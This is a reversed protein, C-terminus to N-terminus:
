MRDKSSSSERADDVIPFITGTRMKVSKADFALEFKPQRPESGRGRSMQRVYRDASLALLALGPGTCQM